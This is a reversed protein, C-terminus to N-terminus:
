KLLIMKRTEVFAGASMRYFYVGSAVRAGRDDEGNWTASWRGAGRHSDVLTRVLRGSVDYISLDVLAGGSPVDFYISTTPNFPNPVNAHLAFESPMPTDNADTLVTPVAIVFPSLSETIGGVKNAATDLDDTIDVWEIGNHHLLRLANEPGPLNNEDYHLYVRLGNVSYPADTVIDWYAPSGGVDYSSLVPAPPATPSLYTNGGSTSGFFDVSARLINNTDYLDVYPAGPPTNESTICPSFESVTNAAVDIATATIISNPPVPACTLAIVAHGSGDAVVDTSGM